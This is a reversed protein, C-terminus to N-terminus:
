IMLLLPEQLKNRRDLVVIFKLRVDLQAGLNAVASMNLTQITARWTVLGPLQTEFSWCDTEQVM